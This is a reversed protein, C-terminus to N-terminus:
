LEYLSSPKVTVYGVRQFVVRVRKIMEVDYISVRYLPFNQGYFFIPAILFAENNHIVLHFMKQVISWSVFKNKWILSIKKLALCSPSSYKFSPSKTLLKSASTTYLTASARSSRPFDHDHARVVTRSLSPALSLRFIRLSHPCPLNRVPRVIKTRPAHTQETLFTELSVVVRVM